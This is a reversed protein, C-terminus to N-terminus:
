ESVEIEHILACVVDMCRQAERLKNTNNGFWDKLSEKELNKDICISAQEVKKLMAELKKKKM